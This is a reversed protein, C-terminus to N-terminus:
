KFNINHNIDSPILDKGEKGTLESGSLKPKVFEALAQFAVSYQSPKLQQINEVMKDAGENLLFETLRDWGTLGLAEKVLTAKNKGTRGKPASGKKFTTSSRAM